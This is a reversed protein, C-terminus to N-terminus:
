FITRPLRSYVVFRISCLRSGTDRSSGTHTHPPRPQAKEAYPLDVRRIAQPCDDSIKVHIHPPLSCVQRRSICRWDTLFPDQSRTSSTLIGQRVVHGRFLHSRSLSGFHRSITALAAEPHRWSQKDREKKEILVVASYRMEVRTV